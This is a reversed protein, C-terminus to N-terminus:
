ISTCLECHATPLDQTPVAVVKSGQPDSLTLTDTVAPRKSAQYDDSGDDNDDSHHLMSTGTVACMGHAHRTRLGWGFLHEDRPIGLPMGYGRM